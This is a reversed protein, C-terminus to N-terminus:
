VQKNYVYKVYIEGLTDPFNADYYYQILIDRIKLPALNNNGKVWTNFLKGGELLPRKIYNDNPVANLSKILVDAYEENIDYMKFFEILISLFEESSLEHIQASSDAAGWITLYFILKGKDTQYENCDAFASYSAAKAFLQLRKLAISYEDLPTAKKKFLGFM